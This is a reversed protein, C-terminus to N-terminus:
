LKNKLKELRMSNVLEAVSMGSRDSFRKSTKTLENWAEDLNGMVYELLPNLMANGAQPKDNWIHNLFTRPGAIQNFGLVLNQIQSSLFKVIQDMESENSVIERGGLSSVRKFFQTTSSDGSIVWWKPCDSFLKELRTRFHCDYEMPQTPIVMGFHQWLEDFAIGINIYFTGANGMNEASPQINIVEITSGRRRRFDLQTRQFNDASVIAGIGEDVITEFIDKVIM